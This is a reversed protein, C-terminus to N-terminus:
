DTLREACALGFDLIDGAVADWTRRRRASQTANAGLRERLGPNSGLRVLHAAFADLDGVPALLGDYGDRVHHRALRTASAVLPRGVAMAEILKTPSACGDPDACPVAIVDCQSLYASVETHPVTGMAAVALGAEIALRVLPNRAPGDGILVLQVPGQHRMRATARALLELDHAATLAGAFGVRLGTHGHLAAHARARARADPGELLVPDVGCGTLRVPYHRPAHERVWSAAEGTFAIAGQSSAFAPTMDSDAPLGVTRPHDVLYIHPIGLGGAAVAGATRPPSLSEIVLEPRYGSFAEAVADVRDSDVMIHDVGGVSACAVAGAGRSVARVRHGARALAAALARLQVSCGDVGDLPMDPRLSLLAVDM